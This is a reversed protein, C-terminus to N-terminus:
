HEFPRKTIETFVSAFAIGTWLIDSMYRMPTWITTNVGLLEKEYAIKTFRSINTYNNHDPFMIHPWCVLAPCAIIEFGKEQFM